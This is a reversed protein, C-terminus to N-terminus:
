TSPVQTLTLGLDAQLFSTVGLLSLCSFATNISNCHGSYPVLHGRGATPQAPRVQSLPGLPWCWASGLHSGSFLPHPSPM